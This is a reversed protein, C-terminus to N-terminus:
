LKSDSNSGFITRVTAATRILATSDEELEGKPPFWVFQKNFELMDPVVEAESFYTSTNALIAGSTELCAGYASYPIGDPGTASDKVRKIINCYVEKDPMSCTRFGNILDPHKRSYLGLLTKAATRDIPKKQYVPGGHEALEKQILTPCTIISGDAVKIGTLRLRRGTPWFISQLRRACQLRSKIQKKVTLATTATLDSQLRGVETRHFARFFDM